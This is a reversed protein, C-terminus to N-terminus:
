SCFWHDPKHINVSREDIGSDQKSLNSLDPPTTCVINLVPHLAIREAANDYDVSVDTIYQTLGLGGVSNARPRPDGGPCNQYMMNFDCDQYVDGESVIVSFKQLVVAKRQPCVDSRSFVVDLVCRRFKARGCCLYFHTEYHTWESTTNKKLGDVLNKFTTYCVEWQDSTGKVCEALDTYQEVFGKDDCINNVVYSHGNISEENFHSDTVDRCDLNWELACNTLYKVASCWEDIKAPLPPSKKNSNYMMAASMTCNLAYESFSDCNINRRVDLKAKPIIDKVQEEDVTIAVTKGKGAFADEDDPYDTVVKVHVGTVYIKFRKLSEVVALTELGYSHYVM